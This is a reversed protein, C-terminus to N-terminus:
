MWLLETYVLPAIKSAPAREHARIMLWHGIAALIAPFWMVDFSALTPPTKWIWPLAPALAVTGGLTSWLLSTMTSDEGAIMRTLLSYGAFCATSGISLLMAPEFDGAGVGMAVVVGSFGVAIAALRRWGVWEGLLPGAGLAVLMPSLFAITMTQALQLKRLAIFNFVTSGLLLLSRLANLGPRRTKWVTWNGGTAAAAYIIAAAGAFRVWAIQLPPLTQGAKKASTDLAAFCFLAAAM